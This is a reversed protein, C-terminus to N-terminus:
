IDRPAPIGLRRWGERGLRRLTALNREVIQKAEEPGTVASAVSAERLLHLMPYPSRNTHNTIDDPDAGAFRYRPHFSAIQFVGELKLRQLLRDAEGLFENYDAFEQLVWPHILLTTECVATDAAQLARLELALTARLARISRTSSVCYRIRQQIYVSQAFPCLNLGIVARELWTRTQAIVQDIVPKAPKVSPPRSRKKM